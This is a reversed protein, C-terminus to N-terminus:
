TFTIIIFTALEGSNPYGGYYLKHLITSFCSHVLFCLVIASQSPILLACSYEWWSSCQRGEMYNFPTGGWGWQYLGGQILLSIYKVGFSVLDACSYNIHMQSLEFDRVIYTILFRASTRGVM